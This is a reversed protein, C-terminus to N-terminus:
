GDLQVFAVNTRPIFVDGAMPTGKGDTGGLMRAAKLLLGDATTSALSGEISANTSTHVTIRRAIVSELWRGNDLEIEVEELRAQLDEVDDHRAFLTM